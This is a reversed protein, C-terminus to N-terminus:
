QALIGYVNMYKRQIRCRLTCLGVYSTVEKSLINHFCCEYFFDFSHLQRKFNGKKKKKLNASTTFPFLVCLYFAILFIRTQSKLDSEYFNRQHLKFDKVFVSWNMWLIMQKTEYWFGFKTIIWVITSTFISFYM